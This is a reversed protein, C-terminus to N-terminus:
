EDVNDDFFIHHTLPDKQDIFLLKGYQSDYGSDRFALYDDSIYM